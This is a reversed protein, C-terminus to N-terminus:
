ARNIEDCFLEQYKEFLRVMDSEENHPMRKRVDSSPYVKPTTINLYRDYNSLLDIEAEYHRLAFTSIDDERFVPTMETYLITGADVESNIYHLSVGVPVLNYISWKFSDLGRSQMLLGPHANLIKANSAFDIPLLNSGCIIFLDHESSAASWDDLEFSQINYKRQLSIPDVGIFQSPRHHIIVARKARKIYPVYMFSIKDVSGRRLINFFVQQTKLHPVPYTILCIRM